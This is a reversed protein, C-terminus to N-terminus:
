IEDNYSECNAWIIAGGPQPPQLAQCFHRYHSGSDDKYAFEAILYAVRRGHVLNGYDEPSLIPGRASVFQSAGKPLTFSGKFPESAELKKFQALVDSESTPSINPEIFTHHRGIINVATGSGANLYVLNFSLPMDVQLFTARHEGISSVWSFEQGVVEYYTAAPQFALHARERPARYAALGVFFVGMLGASIFLGEYIIKKRKQGQDIPYM